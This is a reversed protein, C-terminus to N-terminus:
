ASELTDTDFMPTLPLTLPIKKARVGERDQEELRNVERGQERNRHEILVRQLAYNCVLFNYNCFPPPMHALM